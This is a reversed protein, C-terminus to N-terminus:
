TMAIIIKQEMMSFNQGICNRPGSSFPAWNNRIDKEPNMFREPIFRDVDNWLDPNRHIQWLNVAIKVGEPITINRALNLPKTPTRFLVQLVPPYIRLSEMIIATIYKLDKLNESTPIKSASELVNLAEERVKKQMDVIDDRLEKNTYMYEENKAAELIGALLDTNEDDSKAKSMEFKRQEIMKFLFKDFEKILLSHEINKKLPLSNMFPFLATVPETLFHIIKSYSKLFYPQEELNELAKMDYAFALKGLVQITVRQMLSFVDIPIDTWKNLLTIFNDTCECVMEPRLARNFAPTALKRQQLWRDGNSFSIGKGFFLNTPHNEPLEGKPLSYAVKVLGIKDHDSEYILKQIEYQQDKNRFLILLLKFFSVTPIFDLGEPPKYIRRIIYFSLILIILVLYLWFNM